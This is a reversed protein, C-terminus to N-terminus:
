RGANVFLFNMCLTVNLVAVPHACSVCMCCRCSSVSMSGM